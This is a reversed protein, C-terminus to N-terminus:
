RISTCSDFGVEVPGCPFTLSLLVCEPLQYISNRAVILNTVSVSHATYMYVQAYGPRGSVSGCRMSRDCALTCGLCPPVSLGVLDEAVSCISWSVYM